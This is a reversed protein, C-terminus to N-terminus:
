MRLQKDENAEKKQILKKIDDLPADLTSINDAKRPTKFVSCVDNIFKVFGNCRANMTLTGLEKKTKEYTEQEEDMESIFQDHGGSDLSPKIRHTWHLANEYTYLTYEIKNFAEILTKAQRPTTNLDASGQFIYLPKTFKVSTNEPSTNKTSFPHLIKMVETYNYKKGAAFEQMFSADFNFFDTWIGGVYTETIGAPAYLGVAMVNDNLWRANNANAIFQSMMYGGFSHGVLFLKEKDIDARSRLAEVQEKIQKTISNDESSKDFTIIAVACGRSVIAGVMPLLTTTINCNESMQSEIDYSNKKYEEISGEPHSTYYVGTNNGGHLFVFCPLKKGPSIGKPKYVFGARALVGNEKKPTAVDAAIPACDMKSLIENLRDVSAPGDYGPEKAIASELLRSSDVYCIIDHIWSSSDDSCSDASSSNVCDRIDNIWKSSQQDFVPQDETKPIAAELIFIGIDSNPCEYHRIIRINQKNSSFEIANPACKGSAVVVRGKLDRPAYPFDVVIGTTNGAINGIAVTNNPLQPQVTSSDQAIKTGTSAFCPLLVVSMLLSAFLLSLMNKM